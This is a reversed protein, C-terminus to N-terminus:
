AYRRRATILGLLYLTPLMAWVHRYSWDNRNLPVALEMLGLTMLLLMALVFAVALAELQIRKELEDLDRASRLITLLAAGALPVPGLAAAVRIWTAFGSGDLLLRAAIFAVMWAAIWVIPRATVPTHTSAIKATM